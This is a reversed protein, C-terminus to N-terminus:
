KGRNGVRFACVIAVILWSVGLLETAVAPHFIVPVDKFPTLWILSGGIMSAGVVALVGVELWSTERLSVAIVYLVLSILLSLLGVGLAVGTVVSKVNTEPGIQFASFVTIVAGALLVMSSIRSLADFHSKM